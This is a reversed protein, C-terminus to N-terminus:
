GGASQQRREPRDLPHSGDAPRRRFCRVGGAYRLKQIQWLGSLGPATCVTTAHIGVLGSSEHIKKPVKEESVEERIDLRNRVIEGNRVAFLGYKNTDLLDEVNERPDGDLIMFNAPEGPILPGMVVGDRADLLLDTAQDDLQDPTLIGLKGRVLMLNVLQSDTPKDPNVLSVKRLLM